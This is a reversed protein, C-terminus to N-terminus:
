QLIQKVAKVVATQLTDDNTNCPYLEFSDDHVFLRVGRVKRVNPNKDPYNVSFYVMSWINFACGVPNNHFSQECIDRGIFNVMIRMKAVMDNFVGKTIKM